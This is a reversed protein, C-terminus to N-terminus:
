NFAKLYASVGLLFNVVYIGNCVICFTQVKMYQFYALYLSGAIFILALYFVLEVSFFSLALILVYFFLGYVTNSVGFHEGYASAFAKTCSIRKSIDCAAKFGKKQKIKEEVSYAYASLVLGILALTQIIM